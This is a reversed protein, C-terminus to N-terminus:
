PQYKSIRDKNEDCPHLAAIICWLFCFNDSNKINLVAHKLQIEKPLPIYTSGRLPTFKLVHLDLRLLKDLVWGSGCLEYQEISNILENYIDCLMTDVGVGGELWEAPPTTLVVPPETVHSPDVALHFQVHLTVSVKSAGSKTITNRYGYVADRLVEFISEATQERDNLTISFDRLTGNLAQATQVIPVHVRLRLYKEIKMGQNERDILQQALEDGHERMDMDPKTFILTPTNRGEYRLLLSVYFPSKPKSKGIKRMYPILAFGRPVITRVIPDDPLPIALNRMTVRAGGTQLTTDESEMEDLNRKIRRKFNCTREHYKFNTERQFQANCGACVWFDDHRERVHQLLSFRTPLVEDCMYCNM